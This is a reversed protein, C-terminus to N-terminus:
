NPPKFERRNEIVARKRTDFDVKDLDSATGLYGYFIRKKEGTKEDVKVLNPNNEDDKGSKSSQARAWGERGHGEKEFFEALRTAEKLGSQDAAFKVVTIGLHGDKGYLSKSKGGGFGLDAVPLASSHGKNGTRWIIRGRLLM